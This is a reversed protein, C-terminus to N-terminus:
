SLVINKTKCHLTNDPLDLRNHRQHSQHKWDDPSQKIDVANGLNVEREIVNDVTFEDLYTSNISTFSVHVHSLSLQGISQTKMTIVLLSSQHHSLGMRAGPNYSYVWKTEQGSTM